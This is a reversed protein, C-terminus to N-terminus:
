CFKPLLLIPMPNAMKLRDTNSVQIIDGMPFLTLPQALLQGLIKANKNINQTSWFVLLFM